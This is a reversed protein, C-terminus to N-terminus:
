LASPPADGSRISPRDGRRELEARSRWRGNNATPYGRVEVKRRCLEVVHDVVSGAEKKVAEFKAEVIGQLALVELTGTLNGGILRKGEEDFGRDKLAELIANRLRRASWRRM